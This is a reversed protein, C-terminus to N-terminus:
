SIWHSPYVNNKCVENDHCYLWETSKEVHTTVLLYNLYTSCSMNEELFMEVAMNVDMPNKQSILNLTDFHKGFNRISNSIVSLIGCTDVCDNEM